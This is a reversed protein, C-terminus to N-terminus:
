RTDLSQGFKLRHTQGLRLSFPIFFLRRLSTGFKYLWTEISAGRQPWVMVFTTICVKLEQFNPTMQNTGRDEVEAAFLDAISKHVSTKSNHVHRSPDDKSLM